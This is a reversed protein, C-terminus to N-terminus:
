FVIMNKDKLPIIYFNKLDNKCIIWPSFYLSYISRFFKQHPHFLRQSGLINCHVNDEKRNLRVCDTYFRLFHLVKRPNKWYYFSKYREITRTVDLRSSYRKRKWNWTHRRTSTPTKYIKLLIGTYTRIIYQPPVVSINPLTWLVQPSICPQLEITSHIYCFM